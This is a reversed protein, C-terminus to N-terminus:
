TTKIAERKLYALHQRIREVDSSSPCASLYRELAVIAEDVRGMESLVLGKDRLQRHLSPDILLTRELSRLTGDLKGERLFAAKLNNNIRILIGINSAPRLVSDPDTIGHRVALTKLRSEQYVKGKDFPDVYFRSDHDRPSVMFHGPFPIGDIALGKRRAIEMYVISLTLPLGCRREMVRHVLSNEVDYYSKKDGEFGLEEFLYHHLRALSDFLTCQPPLRLGAALDDLQEIVQPPSHSDDEECSICAVAWDLPIDEGHQALLGNLHIRAQEGPSLTTM